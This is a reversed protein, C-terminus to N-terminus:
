ARAFAALPSPPISKTLEPKPVARVGTPPPCKWLSAQFLREKHALTAGVIDKKGSLILANLTESVRPVTVSHVGHLGPKLLGALTNALEGVADRVGAKDPATEMGLWAMTLDSALGEPMDLRLLGAWEGVLFVTASIWLGEAKPLLPLPGDVDVSMSGKFTAKVHGALNEPKFFIIPDIIM